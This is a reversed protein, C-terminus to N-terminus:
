QIMLKKYIDDTLRECRKCKQFNQFFTIQAQEEPCTNRRVKHYNDKQTIGRVSQLLKRDRNTIGTVNQLLKRDCKKIVAVSQLM